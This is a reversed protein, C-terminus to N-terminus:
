AVNLVQKVYWGEVYKVTQNGRGPREKIFCKPTYSFLKLIEKAPLKEFTEWSNSDLIALEKEDDGLQEVM